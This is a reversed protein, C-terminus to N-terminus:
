WFILLTMATFVIIQTKTLEKPIFEIETEEKHDVISVDYSTIEKLEFYFNFEQTTINETTEIPIYKVGMLNNRKSYFSFKAFKGTLYDEKSNKIVGKVKGNVLTAQAQSVEVQEISDKRTINKYSSNLGVNILFNSFIFFLIFCIALILFTKMRNM